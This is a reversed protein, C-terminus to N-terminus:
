IPGKKGIKERRGTYILTMVLGIISAISIISGLRFSEPRYEFRVTHTGGELAVARLVYDAKLIKREVGDVYVKWGPYWAESAVLIGPCDTEARLEIETGSYKIVEIDYGSKGAAEMQPDEELLVTKEPDFKKDLLSSIYEDPKKIVRYDSAMFFRPLYDLNEYIKLSKTDELPKLDDGKAGIVKVLRFDPSDIKPLSVVYKVNLLKPINTSDVREQSIMLSYVTSYDGRMMVEVGNIDYIGFLMNYGTIREKDMSMSRLVKKEFSGDDPVEITEKMTRPTVFVRSLSNDKSIFEMVEGKKYYTDVPASAYYGQHAFFLDISLLAVVAYPLKKRFNTSAFGAYIVVPFLATFFLLRKTNFVNISARNYEPFDIGRSILFERAWSDYYNLAGFALAAVTALALLAFTLRYGKRSGEDMWGKMSEYGLGAAVSLLLFPVCLFKVPYRIKPFFPLYSYYLQYLLNNRGMALSFVFLGALIFFLAKRGEKLFLFVALMLPIVGTYVTKLWSQNGWYKEDSVGYGYPDPIFFQIFDKLDFSWTTAEFFSLGGARTSLGALELFPLLQASTILAMVVISAAFLALRKLPHASGEGRLLLTSPFLTMLFLLILTAFLTEIGGGLFMLALILGTVGTYFVSGRKITRLFALVALPAWAATFLTSMVNHVSFLYGSLMFTVAATLSAAHSAKLERLLFFTFAGAMIFHAMISWNFALAFPLLLLIVNLPYLIAPQLTALLPHGIYSYPNWLPFEGGKLMEVWLHRPPIFFVALDRETLLARGDIVSYFYGSVLLALLIISLATKIPSATM